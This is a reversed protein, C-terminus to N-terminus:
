NDRQSVESRRFCPCHTTEWVKWLIATLSNKYKVPSLFDRPKSSQDNKDIEHGAPLIFDDRVPNLFFRM